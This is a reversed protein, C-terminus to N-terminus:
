RREDTEAGAGVAPQRPKAAPQWAEPQFDGATLPRSSWTEEVLAKRAYYAADLERSLKDQKLAAIKRKRDEEYLKKLETETPPTLTQRRLWSFFHVDEFLQVRNFNAHHVEKRTPLGYHSYYQYYENGFRDEGVKERNLKSERWDRAQRRVWRAFRLM